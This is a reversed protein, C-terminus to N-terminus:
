ACARRRGRQLNNMAARGGSQRNTWYPRSPRTRPGGDHRMPERGSSVRRSRGHAVGGGGEGGQQQSGARSHGRRGGRVPGAVWVDGLDLVAQGRRHHGRVPRAWGRVQQLPHALRMSRTYADREELVAVDDPRAAVAQGVDFGSSRDRGVRQELGTRDALRHRRRAWTMTAWPLRAIAMPRLPCFVLSAARRVPQRTGSVVKVASCLTVSRRSSLWM